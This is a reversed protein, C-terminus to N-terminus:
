AHPGWSDYTPDHRAPWPFVRRWCSSVFCSPMLCCMRSPSRAPSSAPPALLPRRRPSSWPTPSPAALPRSLGTSALCPWWPRPCLLPRRPDPPCLLPRRPDLASSALASRVRRRRSCHLRPRPNPVVSVPAPQVQRRCLCHLADAAM